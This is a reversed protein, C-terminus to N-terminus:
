VKKKKKTGQKEVYDKIMDSTVGNERNRYIRRRDLQGGM